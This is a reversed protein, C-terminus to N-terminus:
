NFPVDDELDDALSGGGKTEPAGKVDLDKAGKPAVAAVWNGSNGGIEWIKVTITMAKNVLALALQDDSPEGGNKALKGGANADITSLMRMAKDRKKDAEDKGKKLANPEPDKVWLKQFVVRRAVQEPEQVKWKINIYRPNGDDDRGEAWKADEIFALVTSNDPILEFDGGGADFEKPAETQALDEGTSTTWFSTM